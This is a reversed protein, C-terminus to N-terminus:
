ILQEAPPDPPAVTVEAQVQVPEAVGPGPPDEVQFDSRRPALMNVVNATHAEQATALEDLNGTDVSRTSSLMAALAGTMGAVPTSVALLASPDTGEHVLWILGGLGGISAIGLLLVVLNVTSKDTSAGM